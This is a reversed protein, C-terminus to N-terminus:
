PVCRSYLLMTFKSILQLHTGDQPPSVPVGKETWLIIIRERDGEERPSQNGEIEINQFM